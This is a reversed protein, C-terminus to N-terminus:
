WNEQWTLEQALRDPSLRSAAGLVCFIAFEIAALQAARVGGRHATYLTRNAASDQVRLTWDGSNDEVSFALDNWRTRYGHRIQFLQPGTTSPIAHHRCSGCNAM